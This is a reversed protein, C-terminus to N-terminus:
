KFPKIKKKKKKSKKYKKQKPKLTKCPNLIGARPMFEMISNSSKMIVFLTKGIPPRIITLKQVTLLPQPHFFARASILVPFPILNGTLSLNQVVIIM